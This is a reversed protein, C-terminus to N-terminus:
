GLDSHLSTDGANKEMIEKLLEEPSKGLHTLADVAAQHLEHKPYKDIFEQYHARAKEMDKLKDDYIFATIFLADGSKPEHPFEKRYRDFYEIALAHENLGNCSQAALYLYEKYHDGDPYKEVYERLLRNFNGLQEQSSLSDSNNRSAIQEELKQKSGSCAVLTLLLSLIVIPSKM